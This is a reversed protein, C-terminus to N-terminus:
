ATLGERELDAVLALLDDRAQEPPVDYRACIAAHIEALSQRGTLQEWIFTAVPNLSFYVGATLHLLIAQDDLVTWCADSSHRPHRALPDAEAPPKASPDGGNM